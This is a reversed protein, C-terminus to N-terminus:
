EFLEKVAGGKKFKLARQQEQEPSGCVQMKERYYFVCSVREWAGRAHIPTCGHEEHVNALVVDYSRMNVALRWRPFCLYCGSYQGMSFATLVGCGPKYDGADQHVRIQWNRNVTITTFATGDIVWAPNTKNCIDLQAQYRDPAHDRFQRNVDRIYGQCDHWEQVHDRSWATQRCFPFRAGTRDFNGIIGSNAMKLDPPMERVNVRITKGVTGDQRAARRGKGRAATSRNTLAGKIKHLHQYARDARGHNLVDKLLTVLHEGNPTEVRVTEDYVQEYDDDTLLDGMRSPGPEVTLKITKM